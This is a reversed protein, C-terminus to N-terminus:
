QWRLRTQTQENLRLPKTNIYAHSRRFDAQMGWQSNFAVQFGVGGTVFPSTRSIYGAPTQVKDFQAGLGLLIFPRFTSRSLMYLADVGLTTQRYRDAGFESRSFTPGFQIDLEKSIPKGLKFGVGAGRKDLSFRDDPDSISISPAIYWSPNYNTAYTQAQVAASSACGLLALTSIKFSKKKM